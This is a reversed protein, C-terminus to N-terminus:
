FLDSHSGTRYLTLVLTSETTKYILLWDPKVHCERYGTYNGFVNQDCYRSELQEGNALLAIVKKLPETDFGRKVAAKYDKKFQTTRQIEYKIM